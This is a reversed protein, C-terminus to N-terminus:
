ATSPNALPGFIERSLPLGPMKQCGHKHAEKSLSEPRGAARRFKRRFNHILQLWSEENLSLREFIPALEPSIAGRKDRRQQRGTWDLLQLYEVFSMPLCGQNSARAEPVPANLTQESLEFPSLWADRLRRAGLSPPISTTEHHVGDFSAFRGKGTRKEARRSPLEESRVESGPTETTVNVLTADERGAPQLAQLREYVSTHQSEEPTAAIGARVPNLDVYALCAALASEDLIKQCFFRGQWFRGSCSDERNAQRAIPEVLCRMFWSVDSLRRRIEALREANSTFMSLEYDRPEAPAGAKTRRRPFLNWWRRAVEDDSWGAVLAPRNRVVVHVHNSMVCFGLIDVAVQGALFELRAQLAM